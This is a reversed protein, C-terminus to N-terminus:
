AARSNEEEIKSNEVRKTKKAKKTRRSSPHVMIAFMAAGIVLAINIAHQKTKSLFPSKPINATRKVLQNFDARSRVEKIEFRNVMSEGAKPVIYANLEITDSNVSFGGAIQYAAGREGIKQSLETKLDSIRNNAKEILDASSAFSFNVFVVSLLFILIKRM